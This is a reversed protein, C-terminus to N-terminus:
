KDSIAIIEIYIGHVRKASLHHVLLNVGFFYVKYCVNKDGV